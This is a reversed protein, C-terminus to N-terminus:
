VVLGIQQILQQNASAPVRLFVKYLVFTDELGFLSQTTFLHTKPGVASQGWLVLKAARTSFLMCSQSVSERVSIISVM